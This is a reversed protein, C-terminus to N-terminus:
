TPSAATLTTRYLEYDKLKLIPCCVGIDALLCLAQWGGLANEFVLVCVFM